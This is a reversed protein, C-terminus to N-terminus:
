YRFGSSEKNLSCLCVHNLGQSRPYFTPCWLEVSGASCVPPSSLLVALLFRISQFSTESTRWPPASDLGLRNNCQIQPLSPGLQGSKPLTLSLSFILADWHRYRELTKNSTGIDWSMKFPFSCISYQIRMKQINGVGAKGLTQTPLDTQWHTLSVPLCRSDRTSSQCSWSSPPLYNPGRSTTGGLLFLLLFVCEWEIFFSFCGVM